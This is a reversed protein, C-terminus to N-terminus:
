KLCCGSRLWAGDHTNFIHILSLELANFPKTLYADAGVDLGLVKDADMTRASLILIPLNSFARVQRILEYGNMGPMMLDALVLSIGGARIAELAQEGDTVARVAFDAGTLYLTLLEIIDHDDEAILITHQM